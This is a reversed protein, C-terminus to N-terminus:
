KKGGLLSGAINLVDDLGLGDSLDVGSAINALMAPSVGQTVNVGQSSGNGLLASSLAHVSGDNQQLMSAAISSLKGFDVAQGTALASTAAVVQSAEEKSVNENGTINGITSYPHEMLGSLMEPNKAIQEVVVQVIDQIAM